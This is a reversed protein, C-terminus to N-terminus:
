FLSGQDAAPKAKPKPKSTGLKLRGDSFEIEIAKAARAAKVGTVVAGDGHVVAYGRKLTNTYGLSQRMRELAELRQQWTNVQQVGSRTMRSTVAALTQSKHVIERTLPLTRLSHRSLSLRKQAVLGLLARPLQPATSDLRARRLAVGQAVIQPRLAAKSLRLQKHRVFGLLAQPLRMALGDLRQQRESLLSDARPLARALDRLRQGGAELRRAM